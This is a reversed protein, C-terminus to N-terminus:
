LPDGNEQEKCDIFMQQHAEDAMRRENAEQERELVNLFRLNCMAHSLHHQGSEPDLREGTRWATVHRLLAAFYRNIGDEVGKWNNPGYKAAGFTLVKVEEELTELDLLDWRLKDKDHKIGSQNQTM